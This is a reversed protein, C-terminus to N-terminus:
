KRPRLLANKYIHAKYPKLRVVRVHLNKKNLDSQLNKVYNKQDYGLAIIDPREKLIHALHDSLGGLVVKGPVGTKKILAARKKENLVPPQGKIRKVNRDRAVSVILFVEQALARAQRFFDLHGPHLGDFTGFIMIKKEVPKKSM